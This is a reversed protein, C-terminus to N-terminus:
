GEETFNDYEGRMKQLWRCIAANSVGYQAAIDKSRMGYLRMSVVRKMSDDQSAMFTDFDMQTDKDDVWHKSMGDVDVGNEMMVDFSVTSPMSRVFDRFSSTRKPVSMPQFTLVLNSMAHMADYWPFKEIEEMTQAKRIHNMFVVLVEQVFDENPIRVVSAHCKASFNDVARYVKVMNEDVLAAEQERSLEM